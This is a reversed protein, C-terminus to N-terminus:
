LLLPTGGGFTLDSFAAGEPLAGSLQVAQREMADVYESMLQEPQGAVSFLNCYGCKYQCFPIHFYLSNERGALKQLYKKLDINELTHYATKHPYSYMYQIYPNEVYM